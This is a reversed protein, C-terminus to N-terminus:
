IIKYENKENVCVILNNFIELNKIEYDSFTVIDPNNSEYVRVESGGECYYLVFLDNNLRMSYKFLSAVFVNDVFLDNNRDIRLVTDNITVSDAKNCTIFFGRDDSQNLKYVVFEEDGYFVIEQNKVYFKDCNKGLFVSCITFGSKLDVVYLQDTIKCYMYEDFVVGVTNISNKCISKFWVFEFDLNYCFVDCMNSFFYIKDGYVKIDVFCFDFDKEKVDLESVVYLKTKVAHSENDFYNILIYFSNSDFVVVPDGLIDQELDIELSEDGCITSIKNNKFKVAFSDTKYINKANSFLYLLFVFSMKCM